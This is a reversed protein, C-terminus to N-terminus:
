RPLANYLTAERKLNYRRSLAKVQDDDSEAAAQAFNHAIPIKGRNRVTKEVAMQPHRRVASVLAESIDPHFYDPKFSGGRIKSIQTAVDQCDCVLRGLQGTEIENMALIAAWLETDRSASVPFDNLDLAVVTQLKGDHDTVVAAAGSRSTEHHSLFSGDIWVESLKKGKNQQRQRHSIKGRNNKKAM